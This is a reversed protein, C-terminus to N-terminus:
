RAPVHFSGQAIGASFKEIMVDSATAAVAATIGKVPASLEKMEVSGDSVAVGAAIDGL